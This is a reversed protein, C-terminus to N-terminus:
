FAESIQFYFGRSGNNGFAVDFRVNIREKADLTFRLGGGWSYKLDTLNFDRVYYAVDGLGFFGAGIFRWWIPFRWEVQGALMHRDRYRGAYYGRMVFPSGILAM